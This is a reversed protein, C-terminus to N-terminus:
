PTFFVTKGTTLAGPQEADLRRKTPAKLVAAATDLIPKEIAESKAAYPLL